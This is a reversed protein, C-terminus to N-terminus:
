ADESAVESAVEFMPTGFGGAQEFPVEKLAAASDTGISFGLHDILDCLDLYGNVTKEKASVLVGWGDEGLHSTFRELRADLKAQVSEPTPQSDLTIDVDNDPLMGSIAHLQHKFAQIRSVNNGIKTLDDEELSLEKAHGKVYSMLPESHSGILVTRRGVIVDDLEGDPKVYDLEWEIDVSFNHEIDVQVEEPKDLAEPASVSLKRTCSVTYYPQILRICVEPMAHGSAFLVLSM